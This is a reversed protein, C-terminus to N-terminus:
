EGRTAELVENLARWVDACFVSWTYNAEVNHRVARAHRLLKEESEYQLFDFLEEQSRGHPYIYQYVIDDGWGSTKTAIVPLGWCAAELVTTPNADSAGTHIFFDVDQCLARVFDPSFRVWGLYEFHPLAESLELARAIDVRGAYLLRAGWQEALAFLTEQGKEPRPDGVGFFTREGPPAFQTKCFPFYDARVAMDLRVMKPKWHAFPSGDITEYWYPGTIALYRDCKMVLPDFGENAEPLAHHFPFLLIRARVDEDFFRWMPTNRDPHPHGVVVDGPRATVPGKYDWKYYVLEDLSELRYLNASFFRYLTQGIVDPAHIARGHPNGAYVFHLTSM